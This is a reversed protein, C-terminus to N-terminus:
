FSLQWQSESGDRVHRPDTIALIVGIIGTILIAGGVSAGTVLAIDAATSNRQGVDFLTPILPGAVLGGLVLGSVAIAYYDDHAGSDYSMVRRYASPEASVQITVEDDRGDRHYVLRHEGQALTLVCPTEACIEEAGAGDLESGLDEVRAAGDVTDLVVVGQGEEPQAEQAQRTLEASLEQTPAEPAPLTETCGILLSMAGLLM